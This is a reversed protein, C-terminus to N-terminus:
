MFFVAAIAGVIASWSTMSIVGASTDVVIREPIMMKEYFATTMSEWSRVDANLNYASSDWATFGHFVGSYRSIEWTANADNLANELQTQNGHADDAGGSLSCYLCIYFVCLSVSISCM